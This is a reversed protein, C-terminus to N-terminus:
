EESHQMGLEKDVKSIFEQEFPETLEKKLKYNYLSVGGNGQSGGERKKNYAYVISIASTKATDWYEKGGYFHLTYTYPQMRETICISIYETDDNYYDKVSDQHIDNNEVIVHHVVKELVYKPISYRYRKIYGHTGGGMCSSLPLIIFLLRM